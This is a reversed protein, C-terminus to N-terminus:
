YYSNYDITIIVLCGGFKGLFNHSFRYLFFSFFYIYFLLPFLDIIIDICISVDVIEVNYDNCFFYKKGAETCLRQAMEHCFQEVDLSVQKVLVGPVMQLVPLFFIGNIRNRNSCMVFLSVIYM